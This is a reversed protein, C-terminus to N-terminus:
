AIASRASSRRRRLCAGALAFGAILMVWVEPEPAPAASLPNEGDYGFNHLEFGGSATVDGGLIAVGNVAGGSFTFAGTDPALLSGVLDYNELKLSTAGTFNFLTDSAQLCLLSGAGHSCANINDNGDVYFAGGDQVVSGADSVNIIVTATTGGALDLFISHNSGFDGAPLDFVNVGSSNAELTIDGYGDNSITDGTTTPLAALAASTTKAGSLLSAFSQGGSTVGDGTTPDLGTSAQTRIAGIASSPAAAGKQSGIAANAYAEFATSSGEAVFDDVLGSPQVAGGLAPIGNNPSGISYYTNNFTAAGTVMLRGEVDGSGDSVTYSGFVAGNYYEGLMGLLNAAHAPVSSGGALLIAALPSWLGRGRAQAVVTTTKRM